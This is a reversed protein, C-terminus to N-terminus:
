NMRESTGVSGAETGARGASEMFAAAASKVRTTLGLGLTVAKWGPHDEIRSFRLLAATETAASGASEQRLASTLLVYAIPNRDPRAAEAAAVERLAEAFNAAAGATGVARIAKKLSEKSEADSLTAEIIRQPREAFAWVTVRDGSQLLDDVVAACLWDAAAPGSAAM